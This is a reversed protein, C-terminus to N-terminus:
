EGYIYDSTDRYAEFSIRCEEINKFPGAETWGGKFFYYENNRIFIPESDSVWSENDELISM